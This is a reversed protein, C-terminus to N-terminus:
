VEENESIWHLCERLSGLFMREHEFNEIRWFTKVDNNAVLRYNKCEIINHLEKNRKNVLSHDIIVPFHLTNKRGKNFQEIIFRIERIRM